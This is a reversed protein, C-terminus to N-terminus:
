NFGYNGGIWYPKVYLNKIKNHSRLLKVTKELDSKKYKPAVAYWKRTDTSYIGYYKRNAFISNVWSEFGNSQERDLTMSVSIKPQITPTVLGINHYMGARMSTEDLSYEPMVPLMDPLELTDSRKVAVWKGDEEWPFKIYLDFDRISDPTAM